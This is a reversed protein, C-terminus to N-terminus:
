PNAFNECLRAKAPAAVVTGNPFMNRAMNAAICGVESFPAEMGKPFGHCPPNAGGLIFPWFKVRFIIFGLFLFICCKSNYLYLVTWRAFVHKRKTENRQETVQCRTCISSQHHLMILVFLLVFFIPMPIQFLNDWSFFVYHCSHCDHYCCDYRYVHSSHYCMLFLCRWFLSQPCKVTMLCSSQLWHFVGFVWLMWPQRRLDPTSIERQFSSVTELPGLASLIWIKLM